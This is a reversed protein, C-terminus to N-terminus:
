PRKGQRRNLKASESVIKSAKRSKPSAPHFYVTFAPWEAGDEDLENHFTIDQIVVHGLSRLQTALRNLLRPVDEMARGKPNSLSFHTVPWGPM